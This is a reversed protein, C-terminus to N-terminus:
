RYDTGKEKATHTHTSYRNAFAFIEFVTFYLAFMVIVMLYLTTYQSAIAM